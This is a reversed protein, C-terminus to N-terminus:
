FLILLLTAFNLDNKITQVVEASDIGPTSPDIIVLDFPQGARYQVQLQEFFDTGNRIYCAKVGLVKSTDGLFNPDDRPWYCM